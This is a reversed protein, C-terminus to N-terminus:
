AILEANASGMKGSFFIRNKWVYLNKPETVNLSVITPSEVFDYKWLFEFNSNTSSFYVSGNFGVFHSPLSDVSGVNLDFIEIQTTNPDYIWLERGSSELFGEMFLKGYIEKMESPGM